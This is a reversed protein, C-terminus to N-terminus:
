MRQPWCVQQVGLSLDDIGAYADGQLLWAVARCCPTTHWRARMPPGPHTGCRTGERVAGVQSFEAFELYNDQSAPFDQFSLGGLGGFNFAQTNMLVAAHIRSLATSAHTYFGCPTTQQGHPRQAAPPPALPTSSLPPQTEQNGATTHAAPLAPTDFFSPPPHQRSSGQRLATSPHPQRGVQLTVSQNPHQNQNVCSAHMGECCSPFGQVRLRKFM